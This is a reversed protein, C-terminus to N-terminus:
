LQIHEKFSPPNLLANSHINKHRCLSCSYFVEAGNITHYGAPLLKDSHLDMLNSTYVTVEHGRRVLEKTVNYVVNAIGDAVRLM